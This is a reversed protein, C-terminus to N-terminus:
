YEAGAPWPVYLMPRAGIQDFDSLNNLEKLKEPTTGFEGAIEELTVGPRVRVGVRPPRGPTEEAGSEEESSSIDEPEEEEEPEPKSSWNVSRVGAPAPEFAAEQVPAAPRRRVSFTERERSEEAFPSPEPEAPAVRKKVPAPKSAAPKGAIAGSSTGSSSRRAATRRPEPPTLDVAEARKPKSPSPAATKATAGSRSPKSAPSSAKRAEAPLKLTQGARLDEPRDLGNLKMLQEPTGGFKVAIRYLTDGKQVQYTARPAGGGASSVLVTRSAPPEAARGGTRRAPKSDKEREPLRITDGPLILDPNETPNAKLLEHLSLGHRRAIKSFTDGPRVTYSAAGTSPVAWFGTMLLSLLSASVRRLQLYKM